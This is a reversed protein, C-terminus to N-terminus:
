RKSAIGEKGIDGNQTEKTGRNVTSNFAWILGVIIQGWEVKIASDKVVKMCIQNNRLCIHKKSYGRAWFVREESMKEKFKVRKRLILGFENEQRIASLVTKDQMITRQM